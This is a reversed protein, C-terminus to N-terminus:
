FLRDLLRHSPGPLLMLSAIFLVLSILPYFEDSLMEVYIPSCSFLELIVGLNRLQPVLYIITDNMSCMFLLLKLPLKYLQIEYVSGHINLDM